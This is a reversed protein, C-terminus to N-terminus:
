QVENEINPVSLKEQRQKEKEEFFKKYNDYGKFNELFWALVHRYPNTQVNARKKETEFDKLLKESNDVTLIYEKMNDYTLNKYTEKDPNKKITKVKIIVNQHVEYFKQVADYEDTGFIDARKLFTKSVIGAVVKGNTDREIRINKMM